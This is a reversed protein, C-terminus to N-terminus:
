ISARMGEEETVILLNLAYNSSISASQTVIAVAFVFSGTEIVM